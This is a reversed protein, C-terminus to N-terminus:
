YGPNQVLNPNAILDANPIPYLNRYAPVSTGAKVGGKFPWLYTSGTFKGYRILDTRRHGEWYLERGREDLYFDTTLAAASVNGSTNGYARSRLANVYTLAQAVSGGSGGRAVAEGYILYQEALRFLAFDLSSFTGNLSPPTTNTSTINKFKTVKLGDNPADIADIVAKTGAFIGRKDLTGNPDPFLAPLNQRTRNGAWGGNPVGYATSVMGAADPATYVMANILFTTGGYNTGNVGDYNITLINETNNINNDALFLDRYNPKLSYSSAIVKSSYTIAETYKATGTYVQANLYLRALLAWDAGKNARGYESEASGPNALDGEIAKLESEVYAFLAAKTTQKPNVKGILDNETLFPPNGFADLLVWYQFARLFRAEARYRLVNTADAGTINRSALQEPTSQRLYENVLTIQSISRSYLGRLFQNDTSWTSNDLEPIGTDGWNCIAEDTTLEQSTWFLRLFDAFGSNLGGVDSNDSGSPSTLAYNAYLRALGQKYGAPTAYVVSETVDNTPLVNLSEKKCSNLSLLVVASTLITKFSNKM